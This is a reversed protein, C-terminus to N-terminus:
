ENRTCHLTIALAVPSSASTVVLTIRTDLGMQNAATAAVNAKTSSVAVTSGGGTVTVPVNDIRLQITCTGSTLIAAIEDITGPPEQELAVDYTGNAPALVNFHIPFRRLGLGIGSVNITTNAEPM